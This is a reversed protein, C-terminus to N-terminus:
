KTPEWTRLDILTFVWHDMPPVWGMLFARLIFAEKAAQRQYPRFRVVIWQGAYEARPGDYKAQIIDAQNLPVRTKM